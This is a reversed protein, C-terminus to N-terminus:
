AASRTESYTTLNGRSDGRKRARRLAQELAEETMGIRPAAQRYTLGQARLIIWDSLVYERPIDPRRDGRSPKKREGVPIIDTRGNRTWRCYHTSCMERGGHYTEAGPLRIGQRWLYKSQMKVGCDKVTCIRLGQLPSVVARPDEHNDRALQLTKELTNRRLGMAVAAQGTTRGLERHIVWQDLRASM